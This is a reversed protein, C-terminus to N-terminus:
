KGSPGEGNRGVASSHQSADDSIVELAIRVAEELNRDDFRYACSALFAVRDLTEIMQASVVTEVEAADEALEVRQQVEELSARDMRPPDVLTARGAAAGGVFVLLVFLSLSGAKKLRASLARSPNPRTFPDPGPLTQM